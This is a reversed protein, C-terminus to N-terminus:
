TEETQWVFLPGRFSKGICTGLLAVKSSLPQELIYLSLVFVLLGGGTDYCSGGSGPPPLGRESQDARGGRAPRLGGVQGVRTLGAISIYGGAGRSPAHPPVSAGNAKGALPREHPRHIAPQYSGNLRPREPAVGVDTGAWPRQDPPPVGGGSPRM